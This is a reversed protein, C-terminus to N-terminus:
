KYNNKIRLFNVIPIITVLIIVLSLVQRFSFGYLYVRYVKLFELSFIIVATGLSFLCFPLGQLFKKRQVKKFVFILLISLLVFSIAEYLEVPHFRGSLGVIRVGLFSSTERGFGAGALQQGIKIFVMACSTSIAFVDLIRKLNYKKNRLYIILFLFGGLLGGWLSLGPTERVVIYKLINAGFEESNRLIYVLRASFLVALSTYLFIDLYETELMEEKAYRWVIFTALIFSIALFLGFTYVNFQGITYLVPKM